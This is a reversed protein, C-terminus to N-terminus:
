GAQSATTLLADLAIVQEQFDLESHAGFVQSVLLDVNRADKQIDALLSCVVPDSLDLSPVPSTSALMRSANSM